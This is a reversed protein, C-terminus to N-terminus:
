LSAQRVSMVEGTDARRAVEQFGIGALTLSHLQQGSVECDPIPCAILEVQLPRSDLRCDLVWGLGGCLTCRSM